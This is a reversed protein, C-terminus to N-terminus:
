VVTYGKAIPLMAAYKEARKTKPRDIIQAAKKPRGRGRKILIERIKPVVKINEEGSSEAIPYKLIHLFPMGPFKEIKEMPEIKNEISIVYIIFNAMYPSPAVTNYGLNVSFQNWHNDVFLASWIDGKQTNQIMYIIDTDTAQYYFPSSMNIYNLNITNLIIYKKYSKNIERTNLWINLNNLGILNKTNPFQIFDEPYLYYYDLYNFNYTVANTMNLYSNLENFLSESHILITGNQSMNTVEVYSIADKVNLIPPLERPLITVNFNYYKDESIQGSKILADGNPIFRVFKKVFNSLTNKDHYINVNDRDVDFVEQLFIGYIWKYLQRLIKVSRVLVRINKIVDRNSSKYPATPGISIETYETTNEIPIYVGAKIDFIAYWFGTTIDAIVRGDDDYMYINTRYTPGTNYYQIITKGPPSPIMMPDFVKIGLPVAPPLFVVMQTLMNSATNIWIGVARCKGAEDLVQGFISEGFILKYDYNYFPFKPGIYDMDVYWIIQNQKAKLAKQCIYTMESGFLKIGLDKSKKENKGYTLIILDCQSFTMGVGQYKYILVTPRNYNFVRAHFFRNRPIVIEGYDNKTPRFIFINVGFVEELIRLYRNPDLPIETNSIIKIITDNDMDYNEQKVLNPDLAKAIQLRLKRVYTELDGVTQVKNSPIMYNPDDTAFCLSHLVSNPTHPMGYRVYDTYGLHSADKYRSYTKLLSNVGSGVEGERYLQLQTRTTRIRINGGSGKEKTRLKQHYYKNYDNSLGEAMM